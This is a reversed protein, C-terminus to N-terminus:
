SPKIDKTKSRQEVGKLVEMVKKISVKSLEDSLKIMVRKHQSENILSASCIKNLSSGLLVSLVIIFAGIKRMFMGGRFSVLYRINNKPIIQNQTNAYGKLANKKIIKGKKALGLVNKRKLKKTASVVRVISPKM